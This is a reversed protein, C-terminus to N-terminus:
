RPDGAPVLSDLLATQRALTSATMLSRVPVRVGLDEGLRRALRVVLLSDGGLDFFDSDASLDSWGLLETWRAAM